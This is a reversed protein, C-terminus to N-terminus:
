DHEGLAELRRVLQHPLDLRVHAVPQGGVGVRALDLEHVVERLREGALDPSDLQALPLERRLVMRHALGRLVTLAAALISRTCGTRVGEPTAVARRLSARGACGTVRAITGWHAARASASAASLATPASSHCRSM